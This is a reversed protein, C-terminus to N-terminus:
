RHGSHDVPTAPQQRYVEDVLRWYRERTFQDVFRVGAGHRYVMEGGFFGAAGIVGVGALSLLVYVLAAKQPFRGQLAFRWATLLVVAALSGFGFAKHLDLTEHAEHTPRLLVEATMGAAVAGVAAVAALVLNIWAVYHLRPRGAVLAVIDLLV